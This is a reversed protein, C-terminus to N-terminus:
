MWADPPMIGLDRLEGKIREVDERFLDPFFDPMPLPDSQNVKDRLARAPYDAPPLGVFAEIERLFGKADTQQEPLFMVRMQEPGLGAAMRRLSQGYEAYTWIHDAKLYAKMQEPSWSAVEDIRGNYKADFKLHSWLRHLPDRLLYLVRLRTCSAAIDKWAWEPLAAYLNSFDCSWTQGGPPRIVEAYWDDDMPSRLYISMWRVLERLRDLNANPDQLARSYANRVRNVRHQDNLISSDLYKRHFYHIEKEPSFYLDNNFRLCWSLWTTGAKMAGANIFLNGFPRRTM